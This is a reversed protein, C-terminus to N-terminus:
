ESALVTKVVPFSFGAQEVHFYHVMRSLGM